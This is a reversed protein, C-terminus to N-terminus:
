QNERNHKYREPWLHVGYVYGYKDYLKSLRTARVKFQDFNKQEPNMWQVEALAAMRPLIMYTAFNPNSVYETWLNAQAGLIHKRSEEAMTAPAPDLSYVKEVTVVHPQAQPESYQDKTQAYDFYCYSTPSMIVDHGLKAGREGPEIGRWSMITASKNIDGDLIEDWGIIARGKSNLHKEIRNTFYAQLKKIPLNQEAMVKKCRECANWRETPTEDGGIHIYKSPFIQIVEDLVDEAFKFTEEKGLCLVDFYVGWKHGVEYPGGTCGLNPYAALAAKMHGPMDIEPIVTIHRQRAYEVIEKCQEQTYYGSYPIGDEVDSNHGMVTGSRMSGIETLRPYKKIEIRWGQDDNLHWHFVNMNHLAILDIFEKVFDITFFHRSSDLMMGRYKFRPADSIKVAPLTIAEKTADGIPLSKRLTQIGYFVGASSMGSISIKKDNVAITYAEDGLISKDLSLEIYGGKKPKVNSVTLKLGTLENIYNALFQANKQMLEDSSTCVITTNSNLTFAKGKTMVISHPLPIVNYDADAAFGIVALASLALSLLIKKM